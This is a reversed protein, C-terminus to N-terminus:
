YNGTDHFQLKQKCKHRKVWQFEHASQCVFENVLKINTAAFILQADKIHDALATGQEYLPAVLGYTIGRHESCEGVAYIDIESTQMQDNVVIGRNVNLGADRALGVNSRIGVAMVVLDCEIEMGDSFRIGEVRKNGFITATQKEL